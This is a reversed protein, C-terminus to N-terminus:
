NAMIFVSELLPFLYLQCNFLPVGSTSPLVSTYDVLALARKYKRVHGLIYSIGLCLYFYPMYSISVLLPQSRSFAVGGRSRLNSKGIHILRPVLCLLSWILGNVLWIRTNRVILLSSCPWDVDELDLEREPCPLHNPHSLRFIHM